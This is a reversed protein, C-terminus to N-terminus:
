VPEIEIVHNRRDISLVFDDFKDEIEQLESSSLNNEIDVRLNDGKKLIGKINFKKSLYNLIDYFKNPIGTYTWNAFYEELKEGKLDIYIERNDTFLEKFM